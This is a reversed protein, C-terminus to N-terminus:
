SVAAMLPAPAGTAAAVIHAAMLPPVANGVQRFQSTMSGHLPYDAPFSQLTLAEDITLRVANDWLWGQAKTDVCPAPRSASVVHDTWSDPSSTGFSHRLRASPDIGLGEAATVWPRPGDFLAGAPNQGHTAVPPVAAGTRTAVLVARKRVQPVGYNAANLIGCWASYGLERYLHVHLKWVELAPPVQECCIWDPRVVEVWDPVLDVLWGSSGARREGKGAVSWDTCPPSAILGWAGRFVEPPYEAVDARITLHGAARRTACADADWEIGIDELGIMRLGESWGGPGAFLDVILGTM